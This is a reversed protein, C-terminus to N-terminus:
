TDGLGVQGNRKFMKHMVDGITARIKWCCRTSCCFSHLLTDQKAHVDIGVRSKGEIPQTSFVLVVMQLEMLLCSMSRTSGQGAFFFVKNSFVMMVTYEEWLIQVHHGYILEKVGRRRAEKCRLEKSGEGEFISM